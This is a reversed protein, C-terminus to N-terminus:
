GEATGLRDGPSWRAHARAAKEANYTAAYRRVMAPTSHGLLFQVDIERAEAEIAWTARPSVELAESSGERTSIQKVYTQCQMAQQMSGGFHSIVYKERTTATGWHLVASSVTKGGGRPGLVAVRDAREFYLDALWAFPADHDPCSPRSAIRFGTLAVVMAWLGEDDRPRIGQKAILRVLLGPLKRGIDDM